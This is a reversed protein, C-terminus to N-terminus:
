LTSLLLAADDGAAGSAGGASSSHGPGSRTDSSANRKQTATEAEETEAQNVEETEAQNVEETEAQGEVAFDAHLLSAGPEAIAGPDVGRSSTGAEAVAAAGAAGAAAAAGDDGDLNGDDEHGDLVSGPGLLTAAASYHSLQRAQKAIKKHAAALQKELKATEQRLRNMETQQIELQRRQVVDHLGGLASGGITTGGRGGGHGRGSGRSAQAHMAADQKRKSEPVLRYLTPGLKAELVEGGVPRQLLKYEHFRLVSREARVVKGYRKRLGVESDQLFRDSASKIGGTNYWKDMPRSLTSHERRRKPHEKFMLGPIINEDMIQDPRQGPTFDANQLLKVLQRWDIDEDRGLQDEPTTGASKARKSNSKRGTAGAPANSRSSPAARKRSPPQAATGDDDPPTVARGLKSSQLEEVKVRATKSTPMHYLGALVRVSPTGQQLCHFRTGSHRGALETVEESGLFIV